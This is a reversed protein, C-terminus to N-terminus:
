FNSLILGQLEYYVLVGGGLNFMYCVGFCFEYVILDKWEICFIGMGVDYLIVMKVDGFDKYCYGVDIVWNDMVVYFVGVMLVWVFNWESNEGDYNLCGIGGFNIFYINDIWVYFVGIGVGVYFIIWNWMILDIYGNLMVIWVDIDMFEEFFGGICSGCVVYGKVQVVIEYDVIFDMRLYKFFKYGVGVGIMWVSDMSECQFWLDGIVLNNFSGVLDSYVKYGIDGCLYFGGVVVLVVLVYEIVLILLDVVYGVILFVVVFGVLFLCKLCNNM